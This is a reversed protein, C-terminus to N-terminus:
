NLLTSVLRVIATIDTNESTINFTMGDKDFSVYVSSFDTGKITYFIIPQGDIIKSFESSTAPESGPASGSSAGSSTPDSAPNSNPAIKSNSTTTSDATEGPILEPTNPNSTSITDPPVGVSSSQITISINRKNIGVYSLQGLYPIKKEDTTFYALAKDLKFDSPVVIKGALKVKFIEEMESISVEKFNAIPPAVPLPSGAYNKQESSINPDKVEGLSDSSENATGYIISSNDQSKNPLNPSFAGQSLFLAFAVVAICAAISGFKLFPFKQKIPLQPELNEEIKDWFDPTEKKALSIIKKNLEENDKYM